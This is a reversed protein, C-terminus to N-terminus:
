RRCIQRINYILGAIGIAISSFSVFYFIITQITM